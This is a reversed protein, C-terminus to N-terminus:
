DVVKFLKLIDTYMQAEQNYKDYPAIFNIIYTSGNKSLCYRIMITKEDGRSYTGEVYMISRDSSFRRFEFDSYKQGEESIFKDKTMESYNQASEDYIISMTSSGTPDQAYLTREYLNVNWDIPVAYEYKCDKNYKLSLNNPITNESNWVVSSLVQKFVEDFMQIYEEPSSCIISVCNNVDYIRYEVYITNNIVYEIIYSNESTRIFQAFKGDISDVYEMASIDNFNLAEPRRISTIIQIAASSQQHIFSTNGHMIVKTWDEPISIILNITEDVYECGSYVQATPSSTAAEQSTQQQEGSSNCRTIVVTLLLVIAILVGVISPAKIKNRM